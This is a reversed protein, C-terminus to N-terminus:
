ESVYLTKGNQPGLELTLLAGLSHSGVHRRVPDNNSAQAFVSAALVAFVLCIRLLSM